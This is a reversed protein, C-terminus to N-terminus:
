SARRRLLISALIGAAFAIGVSQGPRTRIRNEVRYLVDAGSIKLNEAQARMYDSAQHATDNGVDKAHQALGVINEKVDQKTEERFAM